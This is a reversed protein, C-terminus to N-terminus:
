RLGRLDVPRLKAALRRAMGNAIAVAVEVDSDKELIERTSWGKEEQLSFRWFLRRRLQVVVTPGFFWGESVKWFYGEPLSPLTV